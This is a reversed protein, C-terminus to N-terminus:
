KVTDLPYDVPVPKIDHDLALYAGLQEFTDYEHRGLTDYLGIDNALDIDGSFARSRTLLVRKSQGIAFGVEYTVNLNLYTVDAALAPANSIRDLIPAM